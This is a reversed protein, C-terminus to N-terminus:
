NDLLNNIEDIIKEYENKSGTFLKIDTDSTICYMAFIVLILVIFVIFTVVAIGVYSNRINMNDM